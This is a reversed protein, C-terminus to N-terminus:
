GEVRCVLGKLYRGEPFSLHVPHDSAQGLWRIISANRNADLSADAVIKQFLEASVGGSCSFTFLMGGPRLLKFALLNIDKYGRSARQIQSPTPAFKPPDLVIADFKRDRDRMNRLESFVDGEVLHVQDESLENLSLNKRLLDMSSSSSDIATVEQAGARLANVTFAGTYSFCDLVTSAGPLMKQFVRRNERQDLYFGTKHGSQVNVYYQMGREDIRILEEPEAGWLVGRQKPLGELERVDVDSREFVTTCDQRAKLIELIIEKWREAGASLFQVVRVDNYRDIILGPLGDSEAFFERYASIGQGEFLEERFQIAANIRNAFFGEDVLDTSVDTWIRVRIQSHPSFAGFALWDGGSSYVEVTEGLEPNGRIDSIAGSFIWPHNRLLAKERNVKLHISKM